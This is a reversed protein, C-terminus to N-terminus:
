AKGGLAQILVDRARGDLVMDRTFRLVTWGDLAAQNLKECDKEYGAPRVHRGYGFTGGDVEVAIRHEPFALDFRWKRPPHFCLERVPEPLGHARIHLLLTAELESEPRTM